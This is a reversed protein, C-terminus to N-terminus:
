AMRRGGVFVGRVRAKGGDVDFALLDAAEGVRLAACRGELGFVREPVSTACGYAEALSVEAARAANVVGQLLLLSSGALLDTGVLCIRGSELLEVEHGALSHRGAPLGAIHVCDSALVIREPGKARLLAKLMPAPLHQLDALLSACL